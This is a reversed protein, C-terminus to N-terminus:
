AVRSGVLDALRDLAALPGSTAVVEPLLRALAPAAREALQARRWPELGPRRIAYAELFGRLEPDLQRLATREQPTVEGAGATLAGYRQEGLESRAVLRALSVGGKERVVVTGAALDGLRKGRGNLFLVVLGIGYLGPMFDVLRVLNRVLAQVWGIPEGRDGVVRLGFVHKGLTQGGWLTEIVPYYGWITLFGFALALVESVLGNGTLSGVGLGVLFALLLAIVQLPFDILQALFRSGPGALQYDFRVREPTTVVLDDSM